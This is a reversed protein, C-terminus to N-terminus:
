FMVPESSALPSFMVSYIIFSSTLSNVSLSMTSITVCIFIVVPFFHPPHCSHDLGLNAYSLKISADSCYMLCCSFARWSFDAAKKLRPVNHRPFPKVALLLCRDFTKKFVLFYSKIKLLIEYKQVWKNIFLLIRKM